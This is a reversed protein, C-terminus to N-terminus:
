DRWAKSAQFEQTWIWREKRLWVLQSWQNGRQLRIWSWNECLSQKLSAINNFDTLQQM